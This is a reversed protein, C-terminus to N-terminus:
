KAALFQVLADIEQDSLGLNPMATEPKIVSPNKLWRKLYDKDIALNNLDPANDMRESTWPVDSKTYGHCVICGKAVFLEKGSYVPKAM